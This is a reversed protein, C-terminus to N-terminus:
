VVNDIFLRKFHTLEGATTEYVRGARRQKDMTEYSMRWVAVRPWTQACVFRREGKAEHVKYTTHTMILSGTFSWMYLKSEVM